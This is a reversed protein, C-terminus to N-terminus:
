PAEKSIETTPVSQNSVAQQNNRKMILSIHDYAEAIISPDKRIKFYFGEGAIEYYGIPAQNPIRVGPTINSSSGVRTVMLPEPNAADSSSLLSIIKGSEKKVIGSYELVSIISDSVTRRMAPSWQKGLKAEVTSMVLDIPNRPASESTKLFSIIEAWLPSGIIIRKLLSRCEETRNETLYRSYEIGQPSLLYWGKKGASKSLGLDKSSSLAQSAIAPYLGTPGALEKYSAEKKYIYLAKMVKNITDIDQTLAPASTSTEREETAPQEMMEPNRVLLSLILRILRVQGLQVLVVQRNLM